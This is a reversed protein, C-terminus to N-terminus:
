FLSRMAVSLLLLVASYHIGYGGATGYDVEPSLQPTTLNMWWIDKTTAVTAIFFIDGVPETPPQWMFCVNDDKQKTNAHTISDGEISCTMLRTDAPVEESWSGVPFIDSNDARRAQVLTGRWIESARICLKVQNAASYKTPSDPLSISYPSPGRQYEGHAVHMHTCAPHAAGNGYGHVGRGLTIGLIVLCAIVM